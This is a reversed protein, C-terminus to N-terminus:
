SITGDIVRQNFLDQAQLAEDSNYIKIITGTITDIFVNDIRVEYYEM